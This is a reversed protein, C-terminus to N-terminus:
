NRTPSSIRRVTCSIKMRACQRSGSSTSLEMETVPTRMEGSRETAVSKTFGSAANVVGTFVLGQIAGPATTSANQVTITPAAGTFTAAGLFEVGYGNNNTITFNQAGTITLTSLQATKNAALPFVPAYTLGYRGVTLAGSTAVSVPLAFNVNQPLGTGNGNVFEAGAGGDFLLSISGGNITLTGTSPVAAFGSFLITGANAITGGTYSNAGNLSLTGTGNLTVSGSGAINGTVTHNGTGDFVTSFTSRAFNQYTVTGTGSNNLTANANQTLIGGFVTNGAGNFILGTTGTSLTVAGVNLTVGSGVTWTQAGVSAVTLPGSITLGQSAISMDIGLAANLTIMGTGSISVLGSPSGSVDGIQITAISYNAAGIVTNLNATSTSNFLVLDAISAGPAASGSWNGGVGGTSWSTDTTGSWTFTDARAAPNILILLAAAFLSRSVLSRTSELLYVCLRRHVSSDTYKHNTRDNPDTDVVSFIGFSLRLLNGLRETFQWCLKEKEKSDGLDM